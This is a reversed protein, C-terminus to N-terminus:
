IKKRIQWGAIMWAAAAMGMGCFVTGPHFKFVINHEGESLQVSRLLGYAPELRSQDGDIFVKWGPYSIESLVLRGPGVASIEIRNPTIKLENVNRQDSRDKNQSSRPSQEVWARETWYTNKYIYPKGKPSPDFLQNDALEFESILYKADLLSLLFLDPAANINDVAPEGTRFPPITVSYGPQEVGSAEEMYDAYQALHLPDVGDLLELNNEAAVHQPVSYSPSYIRFRSQDREVLEVLAPPRLDQKARLDRSQIGAGFLDVAILAIVLWSWGQLGSESFFLM